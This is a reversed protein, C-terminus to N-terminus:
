LMKSITIIFKSILITASQVYKRDIIRCTSQADGDDDDEMMMMMMWRGDDDDDDLGNIGSSSAVKMM